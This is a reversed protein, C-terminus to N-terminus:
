VAFAASIAYAVLSLLLPVISAGDGVQRAYRLRPYVLVLALLLFTGAGVAVPTVGPVNRVAFSACYSTLAGGLLAAGTLSLLAARQPQTYPETEPHVPTIIVFIYLLAYLVLVSPGLLLFLPTGSEGFDLRFASALFGSLEAFVFSMLLATIVAMIVGFTRNDILALRQEASNGGQARPLRKFANVSALFVGYVVVMILANGLLAFNVETQSFRDLLLRGFITYAALGIGDALTPIYRAVSPHTRTQM